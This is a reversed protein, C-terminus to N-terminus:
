VCMGSKTHSEHIGVNKKLTIANGFSQVYEPTKNWYFIIRESFINFSTEFGICSFDNIEDVLRGNKCIISMVLHFHSCM